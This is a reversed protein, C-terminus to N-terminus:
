SQKMIKPGNSPVLAILTTRIDPFMSNREYSKTEGKSTM